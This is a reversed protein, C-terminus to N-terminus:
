PSGTAAKFAATMWRRLDSIDDRNGCWESIPTKPSLPEDCAADYFLDDMEAEWARAMADASMAPRPATEPEAEGMLLTLDHATQLAKASIPAGNKEMVAALRAFADALADRDIMDGM